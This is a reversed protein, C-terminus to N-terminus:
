LNVWLGKFADIFDIFLNKDKQSMDNQVYKSTFFDYKIWQHIASVADHTEQQQWIWFVCVLAFQWDRSLTGFIRWIARDIIHWACRLLKSHPTSGGSMMMSVLVRLAEYKGDSLQVTLAELMRGHLFPFAVCLVFRIMALTENAIIGRMVVFTHKNERIGISYWWPAPVASVSAKTDHGVVEPYKKFLEIEPVTCWIVALLLALRGNATIMRQSPMWKPKAPKAAPLAKAPPQAAPSTANLVLWSAKDRLFNLLARYV